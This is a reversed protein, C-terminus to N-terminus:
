GHPLLATQLAQAAADAVQVGLQASPVDVADQGHRAALHAAPFAVEGVETSSCGGGRKKRWERMRWFEGKGERRTSFLTLDLHYYKFFFVVVILGGYWM